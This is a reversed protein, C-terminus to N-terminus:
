KWFVHCHWIDPISMVSPDNIYWVVKATKPLNDAIIEDVMEHPLIDVAFIMSHRIGKRVNYPFRNEIFVYTKSMRTKYASIMGQENLSSGFGFLSIKLFDVYTAYHKQSHLRHQNYLRQMAQSRFLNGQLTHQKTIREELEKWAVVRGMDHEYEHM